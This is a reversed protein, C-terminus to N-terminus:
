DYYGRETNKKIVETYMRKVTEEDFMRLLTECSHIVDFTEEIIDAQMYSGDLVFAEHLEALEFFIKTLQKEKTQAKIRESLAPFAYKFERKLIEKHTDKVLYDVCHLKEFRNHLGNGASCPSVWGTKENCFMRKDDLYRCNTCKVLEM